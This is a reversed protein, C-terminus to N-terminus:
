DDAAEAALAAAVSGVADEVLVGAKWCGLREGLAKHRAREADVAARGGRWGVHRALSQTGLLRAAKLRLTQEDYRELAPLSAAMARWQGVGHRELGAYLADREADGWRPPERLQVILRAPRFFAQDIAGDPALMEPPSLARRMRAAWAAVDEEAEPAAAGTAAGAAAPLAAATAMPDGVGQLPANAAASALARGCDGLLAVLRFFNL